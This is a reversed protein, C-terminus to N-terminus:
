SPQVRDDDDREGQQYDPANTPPGHSRWKANGTQKMKTATGQTVGISAGITWPKIRTTAIIALSVALRKPMGACSSPETMRILLPTTPTFSAQLPTRESWVESIILRRKPSHSAQADGPAHRTLEARRADREQCVASACEEEDPDRWASTVATSPFPM